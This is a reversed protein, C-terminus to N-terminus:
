SELIAILLEDYELKNTLMFQDIGMVIFVYGHFMQVKKERSLFSHPLLGGLMKKLALFFGM